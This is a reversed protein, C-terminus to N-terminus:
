YYIDTGPIVNRRPPPDARSIFGELKAGNRCILDFDNYRQRKDNDGMHFPSAKCGDIAQKIQEVTYKEDLRASIKTKRDDTLKAHPNAMVSKWYNFIEEVEAKRKEEKSPPSVKNGGEPKTIQNLSRTLHDPEEKIPFDQKQVLRTGNRSEDPGTEPSVLDPKQVEGPGTEPSTKTGNRSEDPGTEPSRKSNMKSPRPFGFLVKVRNADASIWNAEILTKRLEYVHNKGWGLDAAIREAKHKWEGSIHDAKSCYYAFLKFANGTVEGHREIAEDPVYAL